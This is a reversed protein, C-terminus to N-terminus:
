QEILYGRALERFSAVSAAADFSEGLEEALIQTVQDAIRIACFYDLLSSFALLLALWHHVWGYFIFSVVILFRNQWERRGMAWYAVFIAAFFYLFTPDIFSM